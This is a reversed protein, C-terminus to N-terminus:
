RQGKIAAWGDKVTIKTNHIENAKLSNCLEGIDNELLGSLLLTGKKELHDSLFSIMSEIVSLTINVLIVDFMGADDLVQHDGKVVRIKDSVGNLYKNERASAISWEDNDFALVKEAGLKAAAIALIGSGTGADLVRSKSTIMEPMLELMLRTTPHYGTGFAMEPDIELVIQNPAAEVQSWTPKILFQGITQPQISQEWQQNWNQRAIIEESLVFNEGPYASLLREILDRDQLSFQEKTFYATLEDEDQQFGECEVDELGAIFMEQYAPNLKIVLKLYQM